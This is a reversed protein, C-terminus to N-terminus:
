RLGGGGARAPSRSPTRVMTARIPAEEETFSFETEDSEDDDGDAIGEDSSFDEKDAVAVTETTEDAAPDSLVVLTPPITDLVDALGFEAECLPCQVGAEASASPLTVEEECEPCFATGM